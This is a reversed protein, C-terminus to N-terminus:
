RAYASGDAGERLFAPMCEMAAQDIIGHQTATRLSYRKRHSKRSSTPVGGSRANGRPPPDLRARVVPHPTSRDAVRM